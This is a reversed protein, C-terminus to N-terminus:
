KLRMVLKEALWLVVAVIGNVAVAIGLAFTLADITQRALQVLDPPVRPTWGLLFLVVVGLGLFTIVPGWPERDSESQIMATSVAFVLYLDLWTLWDYAYEGVRRAIQELSLGTNPWLDFGWGAILWIAGLGMVFPAIGILSERFPDTKRIGVSGLSILKNKGQVQGIGIKVGFTDVLLIKAALYHSAEHLIIGPLLLYFLLKVACGSDGTLM